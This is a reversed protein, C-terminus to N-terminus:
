SIHRGPGRSSLPPPSIRRGGERKSRRDTLDALLDGWDDLGIKCLSTNSLTANVAVEEGIVVVLPKGGNLTLPENFSERVRNIIKGKSYISLPQAVLSLSLSDSSSFTVWVV